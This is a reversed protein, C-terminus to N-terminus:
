DGLDVSNNKLNYFEKRYVDREHEVQIYKKRLKAFEDDQFNQYSSMSATLVGLILLAITALFAYAKFFANDNM